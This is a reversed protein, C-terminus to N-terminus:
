GKQSLQGDRYRPTADKESDSDSITIVSPSRSRPVLSDRTFMSRGFKGEEQYHNRGLHIHQRDVIRSIMLALPSVNADIRPCNTAASVDM